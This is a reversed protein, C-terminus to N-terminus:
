EAPQQRVAAARQVYDRLWRMAPREAGNQDLLYAREESRWLGPLYGWMTIGTVGRHEWFVPFIRRYDALQLEDSPGDVDMETVHIPLGTASLRDLNQKHVSMPVDARTSFAHGQVGIVDVLNEKQLLGIIDLYQGTRELNNTVNYENIMLQSEPFRSRAMRFATIVWDWGSAGSGGLAEIYNGGGDGRKNPPDHLPENVVEVFDIAPYRRAVLDFWESIEELQEAPALDEIWAPQQNGWVLVHLHFPLDNAKAVEWAADLAEWRMVDREPEASGWKGANEPTVKNWYKTFNASQSASYASGLFRTSHVAIPSVQGTEDEAASVFPITLSASVAAALFIQNTRVKVASGANGTVPIM